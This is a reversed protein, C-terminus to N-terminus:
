AYNSDRNNSREPAFISKEILFGLSPKGLKETVQYIGSNSDYTRIRRCVCLANMRRARFISTSVM